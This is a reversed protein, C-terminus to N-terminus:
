EKERPFLIIKPLILIAVAAKEDNSYAHCMEEMM